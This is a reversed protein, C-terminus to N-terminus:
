CHTLRSARPMTPQSSRNCLVRERAALNSGTVFTSVYNAALANGSQDTIGGAPLEITYTTGTSLVGTSFTMTRDDASM